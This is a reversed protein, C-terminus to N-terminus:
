CECKKKEGEKKKKDDEELKVVDVDKAKIIEKPEVNEVKCETPNEFAAKLEPYKRLVIDMFMDKLNINEKASVIFFGANYQLALEKGLTPEVKEEEICDSKNGVVSILCEKQANQNIEGIWFNKLAQFSLERTIDYVLIVADADKYYFPTLSRYVEQGATDWIRLQVEIKNDHSYIAKAQFSASKTSDSYENFVDHTYRELICTKGVGSEGLLAIKITYVEKEPATSSEM